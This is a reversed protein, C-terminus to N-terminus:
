GKRYTLAIIVMATLTVLLAGGVPNRELALVLGSLANVLGPTIEVQM